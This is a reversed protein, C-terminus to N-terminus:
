VFIEMGLLLATYRLMKGISLMVMCKGANLKLWGATIPLGDGIIPVWALLLAWIGYHNLMGSTKESIKQPAPLLRGMWYSFISGLSNFFVWLLYHMRCKRLITKFM